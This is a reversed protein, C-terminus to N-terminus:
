ENCESLDKILTDLSKIYTKLLWNSADEQVLEECHAVLSRINAELKTAM